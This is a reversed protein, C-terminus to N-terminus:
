LIGGFVMMGGARFADVLRLVERDPRDLQQEGASSPAHDTGTM